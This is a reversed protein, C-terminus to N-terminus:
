GDLILVARSYVPPCGGPTLKGDMTLASRTVDDTLRGYESFLRRAKFATAVSAPKSMGCLGSVYVGLMWLWM